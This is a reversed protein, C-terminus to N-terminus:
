SGQKPQHKGSLTQYVKIGHLDRPSVEKANSGDDLSTSGDPRTSGCETNTSLKEKAPAIDFSKDVTMPLAQIPAVETSDFM